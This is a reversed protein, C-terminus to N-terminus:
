EDSGGTTLAAQRCQPHFVAITAGLSRLARGLALADEAEQTAAELGAKEEPQAKGMLLTTLILAGLEENNPYPGYRPPPDYVLSERGRRLAETVVEPSLNTPMDLEYMAEDGRVRRGCGDCREPLRPRRSPKRRPHKKSSM